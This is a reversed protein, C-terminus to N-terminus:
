YTVRVPISFRKPQPRDILSGIALVGKHHGLSHLLENAIPIGPPSCRHPQAAWPSKLRIEDCVAFTNGLTSSCSDTLDASVLSVLYAKGKSAV